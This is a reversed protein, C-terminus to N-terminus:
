ISLFLLYIYKEIKIDIEYKLIGISNYFLLSFKYSLKVNKYRKEKKWYIYLIDGVILFVFWGENLNKRSWILFLVEKLVSFSFYEILM